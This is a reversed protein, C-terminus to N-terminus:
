VIVKSLVEILDWAYHLNVGEVGHAVRTTLGIGFRSIVLVWNNVLTNFITTEDLRTWWTETCAM